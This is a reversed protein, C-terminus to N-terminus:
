TTSNRQLSQSHLPSVIVTGTGIVSSRQLDFSIMAVFPRWGLLYSCIWSLASDSVGVLELRQLLVDHDVTEFEASLDLLAM